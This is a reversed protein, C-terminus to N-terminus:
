RLTGGFVQWALASKAAFSLIIYAREGYAYNQWKGIRRYQLWMNIAFTNFFVFLSFFIGYVFAPPSGPAVPSWLYIGIAVWPIIGALSGFWFSLWSPNGPKEYKEMLLGFLIMSANVGALAILAAIDAIGPLLAIIWIMLSSSFAYEIWRAYNRRRELNAVYWGYIGPASVAFHAVASMLSFGAVGWAINFQFLEFTPVTTRLAPDNDLFTGVVPLSFDTALVLILVAQILHFLGAIVNLRRLRAYTVAPEGVVDATPAVASM